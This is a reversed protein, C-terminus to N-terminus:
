NRSARKARAATQASAPSVDARRRRVRSRLGLLYVISGTLIHLTGVNTVTGTKWHALILLLFGQVWLFSGLWMLLLFRMKGNRKKYARSIAVSFCICAFLSTTLGCVTIMMKWFM